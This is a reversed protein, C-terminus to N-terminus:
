VEEKGRKWGWRRAGQRWHEDFVKTKRKRKRLKKKKCGLRL